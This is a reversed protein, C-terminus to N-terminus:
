PRQVKDLLEAIYYEVSNDRQPAGFIYQPRRGNYEFGMCRSLYKNVVIYNILGIKLTGPFVTSVHPLGVIDFFKEELSSDKNEYYLVGLLRYAYNSVIVYM